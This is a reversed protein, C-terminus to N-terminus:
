DGFTPLLGEEFYWNDKDCKQEYPLVKKSTVRDIKSDAFLKQGQERQTRRQTRGVESWTCLKHLGAPETLHLSPGKSKNVQSPANASSLRTKNSAQVSSLLFQFDAEDEYLLHEGRERKKKLWQLIELWHLLQDQAIALALVGVLQKRLGVKVNRSWM